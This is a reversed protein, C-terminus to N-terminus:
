KAEGTAKFIAKRAADLKETPNESGHDVCGVLGAIVDLLEDRESKVAKYWEMCDLNAAAQSNARALASELRLIRERYETEVHSLRRLEAGANKREVLILHRGQELLEALQLAEPQQVSM